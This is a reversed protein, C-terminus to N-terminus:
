WVKSIRSPDKLDLSEYHEEEQNMLADMNRGVVLYVTCPDLSDHEMM